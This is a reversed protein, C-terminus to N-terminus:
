RLLGQVLELSRRAAGLGAHVVDRAAAGTAQREREDSLYRVLKESLDREGHVEDGARARILISADRSNEHQPGFLVPSGFAAPELVSHLGAGHFGGGVYAVDGLAYLDGLVGTRDVLVVDANAADDSSLRAVRFGARSAWAEIPLM